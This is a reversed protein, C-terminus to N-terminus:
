LIIRDFKRFFIPKKIINIALFPHDDEDNFVTNYVEDPINYEDFISNKEMENENQFIYILDMNKRIKSPVSRFTQSTIILSLNIHRNNFILKDLYTKRKTSLDCVCDDLILLHQIIRKNKKRNYNSNEIIVDDIIHKINEENLENYFHKTKILEKILPKLSDDTESPTILYINNYYGKLLKPSSLMSMILNSKGSRRKGIIMLNGAKGFDKILPSKFNAIDNIKNKNKLEKTLSSSIIKSM